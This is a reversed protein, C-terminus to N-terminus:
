DYFRRLAGLSTEDRAPLFSPVGLRNLVDMPQIPQRELDILPEIEPGYYAQDPAHAADESVAGSTAEIGWSKRWFARVAKEPLGRLELLLFPNDDLREAIIYYIAAMHKCLHGGNMCQCFSDPEPSFSPFLQGDEMGLRQELDEPLRNALLQAIPWSTERLKELATEWVSDDIVPFRVNCRYPEARTGQVVGSIEGPNVELSVIQGKRAYKRGNDLVPRPVTDEFPELWRRAWWSQGIQGRPTRTSIGNRVPILPDTRSSRFAYRM